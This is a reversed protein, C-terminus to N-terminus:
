LFALQRRRDSTVKLAQRIALKEVPQIRVRGIRDVLVFNVMASIVKKDREMAKMLAVKSLSPIAYPLGASKLLERQRLMTTHSCTQKLASLNAAFDM